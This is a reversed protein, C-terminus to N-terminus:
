AEETRLPAYKKDEQPGKELDRRSARRSVTINRSANTCRHADTFCQSMVVVFRFRCQGASSSESSIGSKSVLLGLQEFLWELHTEFEWMDQFRLCVVVAHCASILAAFSNETCWVKPESRETIKHQKDGPIFLYEKGRRYLIAECSFKSHTHHRSHTWTKEDNANWENGQRAILFWILNLFTIRDLESVRLSIFQCWLGCLRFRPFGVSLNVVQYTQLMLTCRRWTHKSSFTRRIAQCILACEWQGFGKLWKEPDCLRM